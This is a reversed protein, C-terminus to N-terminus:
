FRRSRRGMSVVPGQPMVQDPDLSAPIAALSLTFVPPHNSTLELRGGMAGALDRALALGIGTSGHGSVGKEFIDPALDDAVGEGEDCVEIVVGRSNASKRAVVRTAGNGYRLSNEILTALVQSLKPGDALVPLAAEDTFALQRGSKEFAEEWEERQTNFAELIHIAETQGASRANADLLDAVVGTLREVQELCTRAEEQVEEETSILEIEELRMSLATLPTRLQHSADAAFQREAALRGAMREGTRVLEEQVLDIEEIGSPKLQARVQGSGIQEAQAALYILPASLRRSFSRALALGVLLCIGMGAIFLGCVAAVRKLSPIASIETKIATGSPSSIRVIHTPGKPTEGIFLPGTVRTTIASSAEGLDLSEPSLLFAILHEDVPDENAIRRDITRVVAEVRAEAGEQDAAWVLYSSAAAGPIGMLLAVVAVAALIMDTARRRM